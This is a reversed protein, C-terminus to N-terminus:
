KWNAQPPLSMLISETNGGTNLGFKTGRDYLLNFEVYRGRKILQKEKDKKTWKLKNKKKIIEKSIEIFTLGLERVFKFNNNWDKTEYDFFIGGIGRSENRHPLYFYKDCWLKYNKYNKKNNLCVKKLMNHVYLKEKKDECSPTVDMGGGFWEKSTVIFRTNFHIAPIKPNKMHAVVSIGSAWYKGDKSAGFIKSKFEKKFRGSVTSKNIGVKEFIKGELLLFSTGGGEKKNDKCWNRKVFKNKGSEIKEFERCIQNQLYDFWSDAMKKKFEINM